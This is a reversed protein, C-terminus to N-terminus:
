KVLRRIIEDALPFASDTLRLRDGAPDVFGSEIFIQLTKNDIAQEVTMGFRDKFNQRGIGRSTRLGLMIAEHIRSNEQGYDYILPREGHSLKDIYASLDSTNAFRQNNIFSHASPGLGLFDGEEWYRMNHRCEFGPRAFSSIEYRIYRQRSLEANIGRYMAGTLDPDPLKIKGDNVKIALPTNKEVTLQYYSIHPPEFEILQILDDSLTKASQRPLGFIMDIGFNEFGIARALYVARFSDDINHTRNLIKLSRHNFSQIGFVPRNVGLTKLFLLKDSTASEPNIELSFEPNDVLTFLKRINELLRDLHKPEILSPTGGGIYITDLNRQDPNLSEWALKLEIELTQFYAVEVDDSRHIKYFDCYHCLHTCFPYHIYLSIPM